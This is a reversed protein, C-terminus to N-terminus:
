FQNQRVVPKAPVGWIAVVWGDWAIPRLTVTRKSALM